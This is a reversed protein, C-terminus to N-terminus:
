LGRKLLALLMGNHIVFHMIKLVDEHTPGEDNAEAQFVSTALMQLAVMQTYIAAPDHPSIDYEKFKQEWRQRASELYEKGDDPNEALFRDLEQDMTKDFGVLLDWPAQQDPTSVVTQPGILGAELLQATMEAETRGTFIVVEDPKSTMFESLRVRIPKDEAMRMLNEDSLGLFVIVKDAAEKVMKLM